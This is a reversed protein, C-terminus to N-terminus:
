GRRGTGTDRVVKGHRDLALVRDAGSNFVAIEEPDVALGRPDVNAATM